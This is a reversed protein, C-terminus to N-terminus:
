YHKGIFVFIILPEQAGVGGGGGGGGEELEGVEGGELFAPSRLM